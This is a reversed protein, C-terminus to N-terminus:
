SFDQIISTFELFNTEIAYDIAYAHGIKISVASPFPADM